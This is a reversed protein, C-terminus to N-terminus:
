APVIRRGSLRDPEFGGSQHLHSRGVSDLQFIGEGASNLILENQRLLRELAEESQQRETIDRFSWVRGVIEEGLRQPHSYREFIRGNAFELIDQSEMDPNAYLERVRTLFAEPYKLQETAFALFQNNDGSIMISEPIRWHELFKRNYSLIKGALSEM